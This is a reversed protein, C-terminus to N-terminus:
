QSGSSRKSNHCWKICCEHKPCYQALTTTLNQGNLYIEHVDLTTTDIGAVFNKKGTINQNTGNNVLLCYADDYTFVKNSETFYSINFIFDDNNILNNYETSIPISM